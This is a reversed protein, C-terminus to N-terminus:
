KDADNHIRRVAKIENNLNKRRYVLVKLARVIYLVPYLLKYRALKPFDSYLGEEWTLRRWFYKLKLMPSLQKGQTLAEMKRGVRIDVSGYTGAGLSFSLLEQEDPKLITEIEQPRTCNSSFIKGALSKVTAEYAAIGLKELEGNIYKWDLSKKRDLYVQVDMVHRIGNGSVNHHKYAHVTMYIYFDEDRFDYRCGETKILRDKADKYYELFEPFHNKSVLMNHIEFNYFPKKLYEDHVSEEHYSGEYGLSIMYEYVQKRYAADILIDNDAMQRMGVEPYMDKLIAGKLPMYWIGQDEMYSLIKERTIDLMINKRIAMDRAKRWKALLDGDTESAQGNESSLWKELGYYAIATMSQKEAMAYVAALDMAKVISAQPTVKRLACNALYILDLGHKFANETKEINEM